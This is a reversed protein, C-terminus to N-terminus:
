DEGPQAAYASLGESVRRERAMFTYVTPVVFLTLLTGFSMGGVIVWGIQARSEAGAGTALALPLAGLVMAGTTMLIPRMRIAAAEIVAVRISEGLTERRQNAFEVILIGHKTILGILTVLGIQSYINLTCGSLHLAAFAGTMSLPVSVMIIVPDIFSEFQASLVLYIFALALLFVVLLSASSQKFERSSGDYDTKFDPPLSAKATQEMYALAEGLSYGPALNAGITVSRLENFRNLEKPAVTEGVTVINSLQVMESGRGRVYVQSLDNPTRRDAPSVQVIVDYQKGNMNFRTVQRGGFLTELTRGTAEVSIGLDAIKDRDMQIDIQPKNLRLDNDVGTLGPNGRIATMLQNVHDEIDRYPRSSLVVFQVPRSRISQGLSPPNNVFARVGSVTDVQPRILEALAQQKRDRESWPKLRLVNIVDTVTPSGAIAYTSALEPLALGIPEFQRVYRSSYEITAGDPASGIISIVGRDELPSLESKLHTFLYAGAGVAAILTLMVLWRAALAGRLTARYGRTLGDLGRELVGYLWGHAEHERLLRSCMMPTLSLAIFGSILVSGALTLAFESFLRGTRGPTFAVPAYVAVLTLTMAIVAFVIESTGKVAAPIPKMGEEIHRHVNELVVIADDVVLGIALVMALLTLTNVTFGLATMIAFTGILSVPITVLPILTARFSRLFVLIVVVVLVLAEVITRFV